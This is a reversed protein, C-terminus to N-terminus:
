SHEEQPFASTSIVIIAAITLVWSPKTLKQM